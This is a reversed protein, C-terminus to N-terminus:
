GRFAELTPPQGGVANVHFGRLRAAREPVQLPLQGRDAQRLQAGHEQKGFPRLLVHAAHEQKGSPRLLAGARHEQKGFLCPLV